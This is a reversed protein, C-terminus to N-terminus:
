ELLVRPVFADPEEFPYTPRSVRRMPLLRFDPPTPGPLDLVFYAKMIAGYGRRFNMMNKVGVFKAQAPVLGISVYQEDAWEYTPHSMVLIQINDVRLVASPGMSAWTGGLIGGQYRFRGDSHRVVQAKIHLPTGWQPDIRHGIDLEVTAGPAVQHCHAAAQPDVVMALCRERVNTELLGKVLGIGDGAAGGGTTDSTDLLLIPGGEIARAADIADRVSYTRVEFEGRRQWFTDALDIARQRALLDDGDGVVTVSCGMDPVDIYSGVLCISVSLIGTERELAEAQAMLQAYPGDGETSAHFATLLMPIKVTVSVPRTSGSLAGLLLDASRRATARADDHPYHKYCVLATTQAVMQPTINSHLDLTMVFPAQPGVVRRITAALDGEPDHQGQAMMSGHHSMLVGDIPGAQTLRCSIQSKFFDYCDKALPSSSNGRTALLPVIEVNPADRLAALFGGIETDSEALKYLDHGEYLYGTHRFFDIGAFGPVFHNSESSIQGVAIRYMKSM